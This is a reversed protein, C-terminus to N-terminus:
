KITGHHLDLPVRWHREYRFVQLPIPYDRDVYRAKVFIPIYDITALADNPRFLAHKRFDEKCEFSEENSLNLFGFFENWYFERINYDYSSKNFISWKISVNSRQWYRSSKNLHFSDNFWKGLYYKIRQHDSLISLHNRGKNQMTMADDIHNNHAQLQPLLRHISSPIIFLAEILVIIILLGMFFVGRTAM